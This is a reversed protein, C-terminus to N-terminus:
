MDFILSSIWFVSCNRFVTRGLCWLFFLHPVFLFVVSTVYSIESACVFFFQLQSIAKSRDTPFCSLAVLPLVLPLSLRIWSCKSYNVLFTQCLVLFASCNFHTYCAQEYCATEDPCISNTMRTKFQNFFCVKLLLPLTWIWHHFLGNWFSLPSITLSCLSKISINLTLIM